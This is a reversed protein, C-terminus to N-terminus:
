AGRGIRFIKGSLYLLNGGGMAFVLEDPIEPLKGDSAGTRLGYAFYAFGGAISALLMLLREPNVDNSGDTSLLGATNVEGTLLKIGVVATLMILTMVLVTAMISSSNLM